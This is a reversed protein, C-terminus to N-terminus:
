MPLTEIRLLVRLQKELAAAQSDQAIMDLATQEDTTPVVPDLDHREIAAALRQRYTTYSALQQATLIAVTRDRLRQSVLEIEQTSM